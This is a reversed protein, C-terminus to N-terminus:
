LQLLLTFMTKYFYSLVYYLGDIYITSPSKITIGQYNGNSHLFINTMSLHIINYILLTLM